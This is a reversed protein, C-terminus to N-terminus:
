ARSSVQQREAERVALHAEEQQVVADRVEAFRQRATSHLAGDTECDTKVIM